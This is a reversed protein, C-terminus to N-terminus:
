RRGLTADEIARSLAAPDIPKAVYGDFGHAMLDGRAEEGRATLAVVPTTGASGPLARIATLASPGDLGPMEIDMLVLDFRSRGLAAVATEGDTSFAVRHGLEGLITGAVIRNVPNDEAVLIDLPREPAPPSRGAALTLEPPAVPIVVRFATGEGPRSDVSVSGGVREVGTKVLALGLGTGGARLGSALQVYPEFITAVDSGAIGPGTDSVTVVLSRREELRAAIDIRGRETQKVANDVLNEVVRRLLVPYGTVHGEAASADLGIALGRAAARPEALGAVSALIAAPAFVERPGLGLDAEVRGLDLMDNTVAVLQGVADTLLQIYDRAPGSGLDSAALLDVITAAGALPTRIEHAAARLRRRMDAAEDRLRDSESDRAASKPKPSM